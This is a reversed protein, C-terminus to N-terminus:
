CARQLSFSNRRTRKPTQLTKGTIQRYTKKDRMLRDIFHREEPTVLARCHAVAAWYEQLMIFRKPRKSGPMGERHVPLQARDMLNRVSKLTRGTLYAFEVPTVFIQKQLEETNMDRISEAQATTMKCTRAIRANDLPFQRLHQSGANLEIERSQTM